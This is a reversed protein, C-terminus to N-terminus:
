CYYTNNCSAGGWVLQFDPIIANVLGLVADRIATFDATVYFREDRSPKPMSASLFIVPKRADM